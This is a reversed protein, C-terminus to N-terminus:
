CAMVCPFATGGGGIKLRLRERADFKWFFCPFALLFAIRYALLCMEAHQANFKQVTKGNKRSSIWTLSTFTFSQNGSLSTLETTKPGRGGAPTCPDSVTLLPGGVCGGIPPWLRFNCKGWRQIEV